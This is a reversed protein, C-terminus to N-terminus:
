RMAMLEGKIRDDFGQLAQRLGGGTFLPRKILAPYRILLETLAAEDGAMAKQEPTLDRWTRSRKNLLKLRGKLGGGMADAWLAIEDATPPTDHFDRLEVPRARERLWQRAKRCTDCTKLGHLILPDNDM